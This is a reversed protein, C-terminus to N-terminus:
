SGVKLTKYTQGDRSDTMTGSETAVPATAEVSTEPSSSSSTATVSSSLFLKSDKLCRVSFAVDKSDIGLKAGKGYYSLFMGYSGEESNETSSWFSAYENKPSQESSGYLIGVPFASFGFEDTGNGGNRWGETFKLSKGASEIGGVAAFLANWETSDPLHWGAPCAEMASEWPYLRGYRLCNTTRDDFCSGDATEFNLNEAMWTQNGIKVTKYVQGDRPDTMSGTNNALCNPVLMAALAVCMLAVRKSM